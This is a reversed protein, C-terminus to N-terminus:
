FSRLIQKQKKTNVWQYNRCPYFYFSNPFFKPNIEIAKKFYIIADAHRNTVQYLNALGLAAEVFNKDEELAKKLSKEALDDKQTEYALKGEELYKIAKKNTSTYQGPPNQGLVNVFNFLLILCIIVSRKIFVSGSNKM